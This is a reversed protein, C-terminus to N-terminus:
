KPPSPNLFPYKEKLKKIYEEKSIPEHLLISMLKNRYEETFSKLSEADIRGEITDDIKKLFARATMPPPSSKVLAKQRTFREEKTELVKMKIM